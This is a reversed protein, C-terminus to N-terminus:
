APSDQKRMFLRVVLWTVITGVLGAAVGLALSGLFWEVLRLPIEKLLTTANLPLLAGTHLYHGLLLGAAMIFPVAPPLSIHSAAVAIAKNLRFKHALAAATIIQFGWIPAIGCFFGLGVAWALRAPRDTHEAFLLRLVARVRQGRPLGRLRGSASEKRLQAPLCFSLICLHAHLRSIRWMDRWPDFHSLRSTAAAYDASVPLAVLPIGAWAAKVMVELEYAYWQSKVFLPGVMGLPYSRYGCQTDALRVGTEFRFWFTSIDNTVRRSRPANERVLDRVGVVLATPQAQSAAAFAPLEGTAHQGDADMTIAHTFGRRAAEALGARLAAGKGQNAALTIINVGTEAALIKGTDDTSGDNVVIVPFHAKAGAVVAGVTLGHNFVPIVVCFNLEGPM